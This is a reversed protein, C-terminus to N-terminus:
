IVKCNLVHFIPDLSIGEDAFGPSTLGAILVLALTGALLKDIKL